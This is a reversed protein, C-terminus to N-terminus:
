WALPRSHPVDSPDFLSRYYRPIETKVPIDQPLGVSGSGRGTRAPMRRAAACCLIPNPHGRSMQGLTTGSSGRMILRTHGGVVFPVTFAPRQSAPRTNPTYMDIMDLLRFGDLVTKSPLCFTCTLGLIHAKVSNRELGTDERQLEELTALGSIYNCESAPRDQLYVICAQLTRSSLQTGSM